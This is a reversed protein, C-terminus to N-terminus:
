RPTPTTCVDDICLIGAAAGCCDSASACKESVQACTPKKDTCVLGGDDGPRCFGGCCEDGTACSSGDAECPNVVWYGRSNGAFLEQAPLYFAPHSPDTGPPANLDIAAVWLKKPTPGSPSTGSTDFNRPDSEYANRTAVNGYLRRSTFVVWAYGGSPVPNVTPEYNLIEDAAGTHTALSPLYSDGNLNDLRHAKQTKTDVWWIEGEAGVTVCGAGATDCDARTEGYGARGDTRLENEFVIGDSTPFFSPYIARLGVMGADAGAPNFLPAFNAFAVGGDGADEAGTPGTFDMIALTDTDGSGYPAVAGGYWTFAVHKGDPSFVPFAARLNAPLGSVTMNDGSPIWRPASPTGNSGIAGSSDTFVYAGDNAVAPWALNTGAPLVETENSGTVGHLDYVSTTVDDAWKTVLQSGDSSVTHCVRCGSTDTTSTKGAILVPATAGARIGLTAAGFRHGDPKAGPYNTALNTGYSQYYVTGTLPASAVHWTQTLPGYPVGAVALEVTVMVPEGANSETLQNWADIPIPNNIFASAGAPKSFTGTYEYANEQIHIYLGDWAQDATWQLLPALLGRPWVTQDYPYLMQLSADSTPTGPFIGPTGYAGGVGSGGVGGFGGAGFGGDGAEGAGGDLENTDDISAGNQVVHLFVTVNTTATTSGYTASITGTGGLTGSPTFVGSSVDISGLEGRDISWAPAVAVGGITATYNVPTITTGATVDIVKNIPVIVMPGKPTTSGDGGGLGIMGGDGGLGGSDDGSTSGGDKEFISTDDSGCAGAVGGVLLVVGFLLTARTRFVM